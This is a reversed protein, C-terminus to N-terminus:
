SKAEARKPAWATLFAVVKPKDYDKEAELVGTNQSQLLKGQADLVYLHPYGAAKPWRSLFAENKNEKSYNVKLWVYNSEVLKKVDENRAVFRDLIHCWPCWEGGLDVMVHKKQAKALALAAALDTEPNRAPEFKLPLAVAVPASAPVATQAGAKLALLALPALLTSRRTTM